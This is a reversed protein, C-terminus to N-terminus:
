DRQPDGTSHAPGQMLAFHGATMGPQSTCLLHLQEEQLLQAGRTVRRSM